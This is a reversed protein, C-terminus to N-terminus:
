SPTIQIAQTKLLRQVCLITIAQRYLVSLLSYHLAMAIIKVFILFRKRLGTLQRQRM